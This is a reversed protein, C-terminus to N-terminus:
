AADVIHIQIFVADNRRRTLDEFYKSRSKPCFTVM